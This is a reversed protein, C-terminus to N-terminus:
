FFKNLTWTKKYNVGIADCIAELPALFKDKYLAEYDIISQMYDIGMERPFSGGSPYAITDVGFRNPMTLKVLAIKDGENIPSFNLKNAARNYALAAKIHGPCGKMPNLEADAHKGMNNASSVYSVESYEAKMWDKKFQTVYAQLDAESGQLILKIAQKLGKQALPPTSSRQTEIGMIKLSPETFRVGEMDDVSLAYRKKATWFGKTAIAERDMFMQQEFNNMLSRLNEMSPQIVKSEMIEGLRNLVETREDGTLQHKGLKRMLPNMNIYVSDTDGYIVYDVGTTECKQNLFENIDRAAWKIALQGFSTVAVANQLNYYRFHNNGLAGYLSNILIKRAMQNINEIEAIKRQEAMAQQLQEDTHRSYDTQGEKLELVGNVDRRHIEAKIVEIEKKANSMLKKHHKREFFVKTIERPIVGQSDKAYLMGNASASYQGGHDPVWRGWVIAEIVHELDDSDNVSYEPHIVQSIIKEPSINCQRIISPYLSTFDFSLIDEYLGPKPAKVFAGLYREKVKHQRGPVVMKDKKLSNFINADWPKTTGFVDGFNIGNYYALSVAMQMIATADNIKLVLRVDKINYDGFRQYDERYFALYNPQEFEVKREGTEVEGIYDLRHNPRPKLSYKQYLVMYDLHEVGWIDYKVSVKGTKEDTDTRDRVIGWPSLKEMVEKSLLKEMRGCIYPMDFGESNWGTVIAPLNERWFLLYRSLLDKEDTCSIYEVKDLTEADLISDERKWETNSPVGFFFYKDLISDYHVISTIERECLEPKPFKISPVEIDIYAIRTKDLYAQRSTYADSIYAIKYDDMGMIDLVDKNDRRWQEADTMSDFRKPIVPRGYIDTYGTVDGPKARTFFTPEYQVRNFYEAGDPSMCRELIFKGRRQVSLYIKGDEQQDTMNCYVSM